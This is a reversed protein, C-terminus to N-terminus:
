SNLSQEAQSLHGTIIEYYQQIFISWIKVFLLNNEMHLCEPELKVHM